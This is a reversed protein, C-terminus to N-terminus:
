EAVRDPPEILWGIADVLAVSVVSAGIDVACWESTRGGSLEIAMASPQAVGVKEAAALLRRSAAVCATGSIAL